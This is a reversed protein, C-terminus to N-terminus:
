PLRRRDLRQNAAARRWVCAVRAAVGGQSQGARTAVDGGHARQQRRAGVDVRLAVVAVGRHRRRRALAVDRRQTKQERVAAVDGAHSRIRGRREVPSHGGDRLHARLHAGQQRRSGSGALRWPRAVCVQEYARSRRREGVDHRRQHLRARRRRLHALDERVSGDRVVWSDDGGDVLRVNAVEGPSERPHGSERPRPAV